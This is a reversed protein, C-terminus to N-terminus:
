RYFNALAQTAAALRGASSDDRLLEEAAV